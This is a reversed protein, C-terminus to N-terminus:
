LINGADYNGYKKLFPVLGGEQLIRIMVDPMPKATYHTQRSLNTVRGQRLDIDLEDGDQIDHDPIELLPLGINIANRYFIRAFYRAIVCSVGARKLAIPAQERSSGCGFNNGAVIVDGAQVRSRFSPDLDELVHAAWSQQDLTKTYKGPIIRDTDINDGYAFARSKRTM